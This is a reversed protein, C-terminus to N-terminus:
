PAQSVPAAGAVLEITFDIDRKSPLGAIEEPFVDPFNQIVPISELSVYKDMLNACGVQIAYIHCGKKSCKELQSATIPRLKLPRLIGQIEQKNGQEDMYYIAKTKCNILSWHKEIWDMGEFEVMTPQYKEQHDELAANIKPISKAVDGVTSAEQIQLIQKAGKRNPCNKIYHPGGCGWCQIPPRAIAEVEIRSSQDSPKPENSPRFKSQNRHLNRNIQGRPPGKNINGRNGKQIVVDMTKPNDFEICYKMFLPLNSIFRQEKAKEERIYPVYRLLSTFKTIFEDMTLQGLRLDHFEKAKENYFRETLYREKFYRQFKEWTINQENVGRVTKVEEWWLTAKGQLQFIALRAKLNHDYEYLHFYKNM